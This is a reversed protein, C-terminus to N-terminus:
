WRSASLGRLGTVVDVQVVFSGTRPAISAGRPVAMTKVLQTQSICTNPGLYRSRTHGDPIGSEDQLRSATGSGARKPPFSNAATEKRAM